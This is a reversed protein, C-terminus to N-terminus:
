TRRFLLGPKTRLMNKIEKGFDLSKNKDFQEKFFPIYLVYIDISSCLYRIQTM